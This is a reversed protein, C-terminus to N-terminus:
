SNGGEGLHSEFPVGRMLDVDGTLEEAGAPYGNLKLIYAMAAVYEDEDLSGPGDDPMNEAIYSYIQGVSAGEWAFLFQREKFEVRTHCDLCVRDYVREGEQAQDETFLAPVDSAPAAGPGPASAQPVTAPAEDSSAASACAATGAVLLLSFVARLKDSSM